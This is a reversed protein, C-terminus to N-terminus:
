KASQVEQVDGRAFIWERRLAPLGQEVMGAYAPDGWPGSCDYVRVPSNAEERGPISSRTASQAIERLPVKLFPHIKGAAYVKASNPLPESSSPEFASKSAIM